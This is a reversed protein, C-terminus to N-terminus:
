ELLCADKMRVQSERGADKKGSSGHAETEWTRGPKCRM